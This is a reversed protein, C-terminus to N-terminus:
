PNVTHVIFEKELKALTTSTGDNSVVKLGEITFANGTQTIKDYTSILRNKENQAGQVTQILPLPAIDVWQSTDPDFYKTQKDMNLYQIQIGKTPDNNITYYYGKEPDRFCEPKGDADINVGSAVSLKSRLAIMTTSLYAQANATDVTRRYLRIVVPIGDAMMQTILLLIITTLLLELVSLGKHSRLKAGVRRRLKHLLLM